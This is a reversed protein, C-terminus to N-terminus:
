EAPERHRELEDVRRTLADLRTLLVRVVEDLGAITREQFAARVELDVLREDLNELDAM